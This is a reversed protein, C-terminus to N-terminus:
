ARLWLRVSLGGLGGPAGFDKGKVLVSLKAPDMRHATSGSAFDVQDKICLWKFTMHKGTFPCPLCWGPASSLQTTAVDTPVTSPGCQETPFATRDGHTAACEGVAGSGGRVVLSALLKYHNCGKWWPQGVKPTWPRALGQIVCAELLSSAEQMLGMLMPGAADRPCSYVRGEGAM